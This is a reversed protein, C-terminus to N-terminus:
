SFIEEIIDNYPDEPPINVDPLTNQICRHNTYKINLINEIFEENTLSLNSKKEINQNLGNKAIYEKIIEEFNQIHMFIMSRSLQYKYELENHNLAKINQSTNYPNIGYYDCFIFYDQENYYKLKYKAIFPLLNRLKIILRSLKEQYIYEPPNKLLLFDLHDTSIKGLHEENEQITIIQKVYTNINVDIMRYIYQYASKYNKINTHNTLYEILKTIVEQIINERDYSKIEPFSNEVKETIYNYFELILADKINKDNTKIYNTLLNLKSKDSQKYM